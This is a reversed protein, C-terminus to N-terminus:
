QKNAWIHFVYLSWLKQSHDIKNNLHEEIIQEIYQYDFDVFGQKVELVVEKLHQALEKMYWSRLPIGFGTKGRYVFEKTFYRQAIAKLISKTEGNYFLQKPKLTAAFEALEKDIFPTRMEISAYMSARDVKVLYDNLLRTKLSASLLNILDSSSNPTFEHWINQHEINLANFFESENYLNMLESEKFGMNRNLLGHRPGKSVQLLHSFLNTRYSSLLKSIITAFPHASRLGKVKDFKNAFYYSYYGGFLEDGGDGGLVVKESKSIEKSMLYTPIMSSDAFPEGYEAILDDVGTLSKPDIIFETHDTNFLKAVQKAFPLENFDTDAFGVSYTKVRGKTHEAMKAVILSSDIGGSLLASVNVDAILRKKVAQGLLSDTKEIIESRSLECNQTYQIEWYPKQNYIGSDDFQMFNGPRLKKVEKWITAEHPTSLEAFYYGLAHLDISPKLNQISRYSRIDSSFVLQRNRISYYLPKKGFRDRALFVSNNRKDLLVFAFMGDLKTLASQIGWCEFANLIVETDSETRFGFGQKLLEARLEKYNYIEGNFVIVSHGSSSKMPQRGTVSLDIISLRTHFLSINIRDNKHHWDGSDDPGRYKLPDVFSKWGDKSLIEESGYNIVGAIGCM